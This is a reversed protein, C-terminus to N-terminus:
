VTMLITLIARFVFKVGRNLVLHLWGKMRSVELTKIKIERKRNSMYTIYIDIM